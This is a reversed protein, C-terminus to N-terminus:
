SGGQQRQWAALAQKTHSLHQRLLAGADDVRGEEVADVLALCEALDSQIRGLNAHGDQWFRQLHTAMQDWSALLRGNDALAVLKRHFELDAAAAAEPDITVPGVHPALIKRLAALRARDPRAALKDLCFVEIAQRVEFVEDLDGLSLGTVTMRGNQTEVLGAKELM